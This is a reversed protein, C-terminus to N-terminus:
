TPSAWKVRSEQELEEEDIEIISENPLKVMITTPFHGREIIEVVCEGSIWWAWQPYPLRNKIRVNKLMAVM